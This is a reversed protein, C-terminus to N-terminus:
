QNWSAARQLTTRASAQAEKIIDEVSKIDKILGVGTGSWVIARSLTDGKAVADKYIHQADEMSMGDQLDTYSNGVIARGDYLERPWFGTGRVDDHLTSKITTAGGDSTQLYLQKIDDKVPAEKSVVFRTGLVVGDAGLTLAAAVGRGDVIGGAALLAISRDSFDSELMDRIEPLLSIIGAGKLWQHGGADIGQAVIVSAGDNAAERAAKV